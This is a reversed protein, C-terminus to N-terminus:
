KWKATIGKLYQFLENMEQAAASFDADSKKSYLLFREKRIKEILNHNIHTNNKLLVNQLSEHNIEHKSNQYVSLSELVPNIYRTRSEKKQLVSIKLGPIPVWWSVGYMDRLYREIDALCVFNKNNPFECECKGYSDFDSSDWSLKYPKTAPIIDRLSRPPQHVPDGNSIDIDLDSADQCFEGFMYYCRSQGSILAGLGIGRVTSEEYFNTMLNYTQTMRQDHTTKHWLVKSLPSWQCKSYFRATNETNDPRKTLSDAIPLSHLKKVRTWAEWVYAYHYVRDYGALSLATAIKCYEQVSVYQKHMQVEITQVKDPYTELVRNIIPIECGECNIHLLDIQAHTKIVEAIDKVEVSVLCKDKKITSAADSADQMCLKTNNPGLGYNNASLWLPKLGINSILKNFTRPHPEFVELHMADLDIGLKEANSRFVSLDRGTFGGADIITANIPLREPHEYIKNQQGKNARFSVIDNNNANMSKTCEQFLSTSRAESFKNTTNISFPTASMAIWTHPYFDKLFVNGRNIKHEIVFESDYYLVTGGKADAGLFAAWWGFTGVSLIIHDCAALIALDIVADNQESVIYVNSDSLFQQRNCWKIDQCTVIFQVANYNSSFFYKANIFYQIPPNRLYDLEYRRIHIGVLTKPAFQKLTQAAIDTIYNKFKFLSRVNPSFYRYSQLYGTIEVNETIKFEHYKAYEGHESLSELNKTNEASMCVQPLSTFYKWVENGYLCVHANNKSAIGVISAIQFLQNGLRGVLHHHITKNKKTEPNQTTKFCALMKAPSINHGIVVYKLNHCDGNNVFRGAVDKWIVPLNMESIWIGLSVDEGQYEIGNHLYVKEAVKRSVVHGEAGNAFTPYTSFSYEPDSWKGSKPVAVRRRIKGIVYMRTTDIRSLLSELGGVRVASDDDLKLFWQAQTNRISWEYALKLKKPLARYFDKMDLMVMDRNSDNEEQLRMKENQLEKQYAQMETITAERKPICSWRTSRAQHPIECAREGVFFAANLINRKWSQRIARRNEFGGRHSMCMVFVLMPIKNKPIEYKTGITRQKLLHPNSTSATINQSYVNSEIYNNSHTFTVNLLQDPKHDISLANSLTQHSRYKQNKRGDNVHMVNLVIRNLSICCLFLFVTVFCTKHKHQMYPVCSVGKLYINCM